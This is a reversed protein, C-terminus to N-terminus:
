KNKRDLYDRWRQQVEDPHKQLADYIAPSIGAPYVTNVNGSTMLPPKGIDSFGAQDSLDTVPIGVRSYMLDVPTKERKLFIQAIPDDARRDDVNLSFVDDRLKPMTM